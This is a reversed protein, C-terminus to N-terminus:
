ADIGHKTMELNAYLYQLALPYKRTEKPSRDSTEVNPSSQVAVDRDIELDRCADM